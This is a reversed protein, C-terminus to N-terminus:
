SEATPRRSHWRRWSRWGSFALEDCGFFFIAAGALKWFSSYVGALTFGLLYLGAVFLAAGAAHLLLTVPFKPYESVPNM